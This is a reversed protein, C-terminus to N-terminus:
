KVRETITLFYPRRPAQYQHQEIESMLRETYARRDPRSWSIFIHRVLSLQKWAMVGTFSCGRSRELYSEIFATEAEAWDTRDRNRIADETLHALFNGADLSRPGMAVLDLDVVYTSRDGFIIQDHFFDRHLCTDPSLQGEKELAAVLRLCSKWIGRIRRAWEPRDRKVTKLGTRLTNLEDDITHVRGARYDSNHLKVLADAARVSHDASWIGQDLLRGGCVGEVKEQMWMNWRECVGLTEPVAVRGAGSGFYHLTRLLSQTRYARRDLKRASVKGLFSTGDSTKFELLCRRAPKHKMLVIDEVRRGDLIQPACRGFEDNVTKLCFMDSLFGLCRDEAVPNSVVRANRSRPLSCRSLSADVANLLKATLDRWNRNASRFPKALLSALSIARRRRLRLAADPGYGGRKVFEMVGDAITAFRDADIEGAVTRYELKSVLNAFDAMPDAYGCEDFDCARVGNDSLIFQEEHCDGHVLTENGTETYDALRAAVRRIQGSLAPITEEIFELNALAGESPITLTQGAPPGQAHIRRLYGCIMEITPGIETAPLVGLDLSRGEIWQFLIARNRNSRGLRRPSDAKLRDLARATRLAREFETATYLKLVAPSDDKFLLKLTCRRAPKYALVEFGSLPNKRINRFCVSEVFRGPDSAFKQLAPIEADAPFRFFATCTDNTLLVPLSSRRLKESRAPWESKRFTKAHLYSGDGAIYTVLCNTGPKYRVDVIRVGDCQTRQGVANTDLVINMGPLDPDVHTLQM